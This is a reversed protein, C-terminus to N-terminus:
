RLHRLSSPRTMTSRGGPTRRREPTSVRCSTAASSSRPTSRTPHHALLAAACYGGLSFGFTARSAPTALTRFSTDVWHVLDTAMFRDIWETGDFSNACESDAYPGGFDSVFVVIEPPIAGSTILSDLVGPLRM